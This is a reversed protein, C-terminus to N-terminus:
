IRMIQFGTSSIRLTCESKVEIAPQEYCVLNIEKSEFSSVRKILCQIVFTIIKIQPKKLFVTATVKLKLCCLVHSFTLFLFTCTYYPLVYRYLLIIWCPLDCWELWNIISKQKIPTKQKWKYCNEKLFFLLMWCRAMRASPLVAWSIIEKM